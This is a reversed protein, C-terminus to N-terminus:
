GRTSCCRRSARNSRATGSRCRPRPLGATRLNGERRGALADERRRRALGAPRAGPRSAADRVGGRSGHRGVSVRELARGSLAACLQRFLADPVTAPAKIDGAREASRLACLNGAARYLLASGDVSVTLWNTNIDRRERVAARGLRRWRRAQPLHRSSQGSPFRVFLVGDPWGVLLDCGAQQGQVDPATRPGRVADVLWM